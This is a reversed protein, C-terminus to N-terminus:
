EHSFRSNVGDVLGQWLRKERKSLAMSCICVMGRCARGLVLANAPM